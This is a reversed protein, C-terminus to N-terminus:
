RKETSIRVTNERVIAANRKLRALGLRLLPTGTFQRQFEREDLSEIQSLSMMGMELQERLSHSALEDPSVPAPVSANGPAPSVGANGFRNFPCVGQCTDCGFLRNGFGAVIERPIDNGPHEISWYNLCKGADLCYPTALAGTPCASACRQCSSCFSHCEPSDFMTPISLTADAATEQLETTSLLVGIFFRSGYKENILMTNKGPLGLGARVAYERELLPATDVAIRTKADHFLTDPFLAHHTEALQRLKARVVDHYDLGRAYEAVLGFGGPCAKSLNGTLNATSSIAPNVASYSLGVVILSKANPLVAAPHRRANRHRALWTMGCCVGDRLTDELWDAFAPFTAAPEARCVGVPDFGIERARALLQETRNDTPM